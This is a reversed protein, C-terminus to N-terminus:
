LLYNFLRIRHWPFLHTLRTLTTMATVVSHFGYTVHSALAQRLRLHRIVATLPRM